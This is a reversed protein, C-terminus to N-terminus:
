IDSKLAAIVQNIYSVYSMKYKVEPSWTNRPIKRYKCYTLMTQNAKRRLKLLYTNFTTKEYHCKEMLRDYRVHEWSEALYIHLNTVPVHVLTRRFPNNLGPRVEEFSWTKCLNLRQADSQTLFYDEDPLYYFQIMELTTGQKVAKLSKLMEFVPKRLVNMQVIKKPRNWYCIAIKFQM